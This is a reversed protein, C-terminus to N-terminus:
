SPITKTKHRGYKKPVPQVKLQVAKRCNVCRDFNYEKMVKEEIPTIPTKCIQCIM